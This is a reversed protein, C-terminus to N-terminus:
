STSTVLEDEAQLWNFSKETLYRRDGRIEAWEGRVWASIKQGPFGWRACLDAAEQKTLGATGWERAFGIERDRETPAEEAAPTELLGDAVADFGRAIMKLGSRIANVDM